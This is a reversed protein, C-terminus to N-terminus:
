ASWAPTAAAAATDISRIAGAAFDSRVFAAYTMRPLKVDDTYTASAAPDPRPDERRKIPQGVSNPRFTTM